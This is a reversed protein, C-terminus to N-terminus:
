SCWRGTSIGASRRPRRGRRSRGTTRRRSSRRSWRGTSWISSIARRRPSTRASGGRRPRDGGHAGRHGGRHGRGQADGRDRAGRAGAPAARAAVSRADRARAGEGGRGRAGCTRRSILGTGRRTSTSRRRCRRECRAGRRGHATTRADGADAVAERPDRSRADRLGESLEVAGGGDAAGDGGPDRREDAV